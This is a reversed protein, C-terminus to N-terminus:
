KWHAQNSDKLVESNLKLTNLTMDTEKSILKIDGLCIKDLLTDKLLSPDPLVLTDIGIPKLDGLEPNLNHLSDLDILETEDEFFDENERIDKNDVFHIYETKPELPKKKTICIKTLIVSTPDLVPSALPQTAESNEKIQFTTLDDVFHPLNPTVVCLPRKSLCPQNPHSPTPGLPSDYPVLGVSSGISPRGDLSPSFRRVRGSKPKLPSIYGIFFSIVVLLIAGFIKTSPSTTSLPPPPPHSNILWPTKPNQLDITGVLCYFTHNVYDEVSKDYELDPEYFPSCLIGIEGLANYALGHDVEPDAM